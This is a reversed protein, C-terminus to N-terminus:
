KVPLEKLVKATGDDRTEKILISKSVDGTAAFSTTGTVGELGSLSALAAPTKSWDFGAKEWATLLALAADYGHASGINPEQNHMARYAEAFPRGALTARAPDFAPSTFVIGKAAPGAGKKFDEHQVSLNAALLSDLGGERAQRVFFANEKPTGPLYIFQLGPTGKLRAVLPRFDTTDTSYGDFLLIQGGFSEFKQQFVEALGRGYDNNAFVVAGATLNREYHLYRAMIEGDFNDSIWIRFTRPGYGTFKPNSAGPSMLIVGARETVPAVSMSVSSTLDGIIAPVKDVNVLKEVASLGTAPQAKSDEVILTLAHDPHQQSFEQVALQVGRLCKNGSESVPGSLPMLVGLKVPGAAGKKPLLMVAIVASVVIVVLWLLNNKKM